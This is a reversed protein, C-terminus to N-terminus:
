AAIYLVGNAAVPTAYIPQKLDVTSLVKKERGAAFVWVQGKENCAFVRGDAVMTSSWICSGTQQRWITKGTEADICYVVGAEDGLYLLGDKISVTSISRGVDRNQWITAKGTLDGSGRPDLCWLCGVGPGHEPDQGVAVYVRNHWFVPSAIVECPGYKMRYPIPKGDRIQMDPPNCDHKWLCKMIAPQTSPASTARGTQAPPTAIKPDFAYLWGDAGGFFVMARGEVVGYSPSCWGGHWMQRGICQDDVALLSGTRKDMAMLSPVTSDPIRGKWWGVGNGTGVFLTEGLILCNSNTSDHPYISLAPM